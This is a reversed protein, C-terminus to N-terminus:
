GSIILCPTSFFVELQCGGNQDPIEWGQKIVGFPLWYEM